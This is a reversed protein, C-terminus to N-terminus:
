LTVGAKDKLNDKLEDFTFERLKEVSRIGLKEIIAPALQALDAEALEHRFRTLHGPFSLDELEIEALAAVEPPSPPPSPSLSAASTAEVTICISSTGCHTALRRILVSTPENSTLRAVVKTVRPLQGDDLRARDLLWAYDIIRVAGDRIAAVIPVDFFQTAKLYRQRIYRRERVVDRVVVLVAGVVSVILLAGLGLELALRGSADDVLVAGDNTLAGYL